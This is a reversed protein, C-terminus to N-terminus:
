QQQPAPVWWRADRDSLRGEQILGRVRDGDIRRVGASAGSGPLAATGSADLAIWGAVLVAAIAIAVLAALRRPPTAVAADERAPERVCRNPHLCDRDAPGTVGLDCAGYRRPPVLGIRRAVGNFLGLLAGVPCFARCWFRFAVASGVAVLAVMAWSSGTFTGSFAVPLPDWALWAGPESAFLALPMLALVAYKAARLREPVAAPRVWRGAARSVLEQAAGLPCAHACWVPGLLVAIGLVGALLLLLPANAGLGPLRIRAVDLLSQASVSVNLVAGGVLAAAALFALRVRASGRLHVVVAGALLLLVWAVRPDLLPDWWARDGAAAAVPIGLPGSALARCTAAVSASVADRTVTAGTMADVGPPLGCGHRVDAGRFRDLFAPLDRVYAPTESHAIVGAGRVQGDSGVSVALNLPGGWGAVDPAAARTAAAFARGDPPPSAAVGDLVHHEIPSTEARASSFQEIRRLDRDSLRPSLGPDPATTAHWTVLAALGLFAVAAPIAPGAARTAPLRRAASAVLPVLNLGALALLAGDTGHVALVIVGGIGAAIAAGWHDAAELAAARTAAPLGAGAIPWAAGALAGLALFIAGFAARAGSPGLGAAANTALPSLALAATAVLPYGLRAARSGALRRAAAAGIALGAMTLATAAGVEGYLAGVSAQFAAMVVVSSAISTAGAVAIQLSPGGQGGRSRSAAFVGFLVLLAALLGAGAERVGWLLRSGGSDSRQLFALLHLFPALPRDDRNVLDGPAGAAYLDRVFGAREPQVLGAFAEPPFPPPSPAFAAYRKALVAPDATPQGAAASAILLARDGPVIAVDAFVESLTAYASQGYRLLETGVYNGASPVSAAFVGGSALRSAADRFCDATHLRNAPLTSPEGTGIVVLDAGGGEGGRMWARPDAEVFRIGPPLSPAGSAERAARSAALAAGDAAVVEVAGFYRALASALDLRGPGLVVARDRARPQSALLAARAEVDPGPPWSAEVAGDALVVVQGPVRATTVVGYPTHEEAVREAGEISAALRQDAVAGRIAPGAPPVLVAAMAAGAVACAARGGRERAAIPGAAAAAVLGAVGLTVLGDAGLLAGATAIAGGVVAGATEAVYARTADGAALAPFLLGTLVSVPLAAALAGVALVAPPSPEYAPVGLAQRVVAPVVFAAAAAVPQAALLTGPRRAAWAALRPMRASGTAAVAIWLFWAAFFCGVALESGRFLVLYERLLVTQAAITFLGLAFAAALIRRSPAPPTM